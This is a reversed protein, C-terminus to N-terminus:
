LTWHDLALGTMARLREAEPRLLAELRVRQEATLVPAPLPRSLVPRRHAGRSLRLGASELRRAFRTPVRRDRAANHEVRWAPSDFSSDVGLFALVRQLTPTRHELLDRNDLVLVREEGFRQTWREIQTAYRSCWVPMNMPHELDSMLQDFPRVPKRDWVNQAYHSLTRPIPDRVVYVIRAEPVTALVRDPVDPAWPYSSYATSSEGRVPAPQAFLPGYEVLRDSWDQPEFCMCEKVSTMAIDPHEALYEHLSTTGAKPAGVIFFTPLTERVAASLNPTAVAM